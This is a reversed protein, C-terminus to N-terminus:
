AEGAAALRFPPSDLRWDQLGILAPFRLPAPLASRELQLRMVVDCDAAGAPLAIRIRDLAALLAGRRAFRRGQEEGQWRMEFESALPYYRLWLSRVARERGACFDLHYDIRLAIGNSLAELMHPQFDLRQQVDLLVVDGRRLLRADEIQARPTGASGCAALMLVCLTLLGHLRLCEASAWPRWLSATAMAM